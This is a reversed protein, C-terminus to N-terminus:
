PSIKRFLMSALLAFLFLGGLGELAIVIRGLQTTPVFDGYGVTALTVTSFYFADTLGGMPMDNKVIGFEASCLYNLTTVFVVCGVSTALFHRLKIGSGFFVQWVWRRWVRARKGLELARSEKWAQRVEYQEQLRKWRLFEFRADAKFEPQEEDHSNNLLTQYLHVGINQYKSPDLARKFSRPDIYTARISIKHTNVDTFTCQHFECRDFTTAIFLCNVFTCNRFEIDFIETRTFSVKSFTKGNIKTRQGAKRPGLMNPRYILSELRNANDVCAYFDQDTAIDAGTLSFFSDTAM